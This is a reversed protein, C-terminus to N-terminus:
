PYTSCAVQGETPQHKFASEASIHQVVIFSHLAPSLYVIFGRVLGFFVSANKLRTKTSIIEEVCIPM